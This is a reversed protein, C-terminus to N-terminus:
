RESPAAHRRRIGYPREAGRGDSRGLFAPQENEGQIQGNGRHFVVGARARFARHWAIGAADGCACFGRPARKKSPKFVKEPYQKKIIGKKRIHDKSTIRDLLSQLEKYRKGEGFNFSQGQLIRSAEMKVKPPDPLYDFPHVEVVNTNEPFPIFEWTKNNTYPDTMEAWKGFYESGDEKTYSTNLNNAKANSVQKAILKMSKTIDLTKDVIIVDLYSVPRVKEELYAPIDPRNIRSEGQELEGPTWPMEMRIIRSFMQFNFGTNLSTEVGVVVKVDPNSKMEDVLDRKKEAVYHMVSDKYEPFKILYDYISQASDRYSVYIMVKGIANDPLIEGDGYMGEPASRPNFHWHILGDLNGTEEDRNLLFRTKPSVKDDDDFDKYLVRMADIIRQEAELKRLKAAADLSKESKRRADRIRDNLVDRDQEIFRDKDPATLFREARFLFGKAISQADEKLQESEESSLPTSSDDDDKDLLKALLAGAGTSEMLQVLLQYMEDQRETLGVPHFDQKVNPLTQAWNARRIQVLDVNSALKGMARRQGAQTFIGREDMFEDMFEDNTGFIDPSILRTQGLLDTDVTNFIFTGSMLRIHKARELIRAYGKYYQAKQSKAKHSEDVYVVDWPIQRLVEVVVNREVNAAEYAVNLAMPKGVSFDRAGLGLITSDLVFMTNVPASLIANLLDSEKKGFYSNYVERTNIPFINLQGDTFKVAEETYQAVLQGPCIAMIKKAGSDLFRLADMIALFTKGGGADVDLVSFKPKRKLHHEAEMQHPLFLNDDGMLPLNPTEKNITGKGYDPTYLVNEENVKEELFEIGGPTDPNERNYKAAAIYIPAVERMRAYTVGDQVDMLKEYDGGIKDHIKKAIRPFFSYISLTAMEYSTLTFEWITKDLRDVYSGGLNKIRDESERKLQNRISPDKMWRVSHPMYMDDLSSGDDWLALVKAVDNAM